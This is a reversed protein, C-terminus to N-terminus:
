ILEVVASICGEIGKSVKSITTEEYMYAPTSVIKNDGDVYFGDASTVVHHAGLRSIEEVTARDNGITVHIGKDKLILCLVAPSICIAGIPKKENFMNKVLKEFDSNVKARAGEFAFTSLNKAVGFGGPIIIGDLKSSDADKLKKIKGRAIRAAEVLVNRKQDLEKGSDHDVTHYQEIDPAFLEIEVGCKDLAL